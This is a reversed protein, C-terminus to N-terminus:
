SKDFYTIKTENEGILLPLQINLKKIMKEQLDTRPHKIKREAKIGQKNQYM